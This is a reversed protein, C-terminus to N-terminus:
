HGQRLAHVLAREARHETFSGATETQAVCMHSRSSFWGLCTTFKNTTVGTFPGDPKACTAPNYTCTTMSWSAQPMSSGIVHKSQQLVAQQNGQM